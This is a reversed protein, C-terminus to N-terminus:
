SIRKYRLFEPTTRKDQIWQHLEDLLNLEKSDIYAKLGIRYPKIGLNKMRRYIGSRCIQYRQELQNVPFEDM